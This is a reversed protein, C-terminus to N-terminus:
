SDFHGKEDPANELHILRQQPEVALVAHESSITLLDVQAPAPERLDQYLQNLSADYQLQLQQRRQSLHWQEFKRYNARFDLFLCEALAAGPLNRPWVSPCVLQASLGSAPSLAVFNVRETAVAGPMLVSPNQSRLAHVLSQLRRLQRFEQCLGSYTSNGGRRSSQRTFHACAPLCM